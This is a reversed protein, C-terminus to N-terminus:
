DNANSISLLHAKGAPKEPLRCEVSAVRKQVNTTCSLPGLVQDPTKHFAPNIRLPSRTPIKPTTVITSGPWRIEKKPSPALSVLGRSNAVGCIERKPSPILTEWWADYYSSQDVLTEDSSISTFLFPEKSVPSSM